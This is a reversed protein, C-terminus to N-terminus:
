ARPRPEVQGNIKLWMQWGGQLIQVHTFGADRLIQAARVSAEDHPCACYTVVLRDRPVNKLPPMTARYSLRRLKVYISDKIRNSQLYTQTDRVDVITVAEARALKAKLQEASIFDNGAEATQGPQPQALAGPVPVPSATAPILLSFLGLGFWRMVKM